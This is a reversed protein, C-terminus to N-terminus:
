VFSLNTVPSGAVAEDVVHKLLSTLGCSAGSNGDVIIEAAMIIPNEPPTRTIWLV